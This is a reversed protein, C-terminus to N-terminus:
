NWQSIALRLEIGQYTLRMRTPRREADHDLYEVKWGRRELDPSHRGRVWDALGEIPVPFGLVRETLSEADNAQYERPEATKLLVAHGQRLIQAVGQGTPTSILLEDGDRAHRWRINGTFSEKGYRAAIRGALSFELPGEPPKIEVHTCAVLFAAFLLAAARM